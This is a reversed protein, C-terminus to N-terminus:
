FITPEQSGSKEQKKFLYIARYATTNAYGRIAGVATSNESITYNGSGGSKKSLYVGGSILADNKSAAAWKYTSGTSAFALKRNSSATFYLYNSGNKITFGNTNDGTFEFEVAGTPLDTADFKRVGNSAAVTVYNASVEWDGSSVSAKGFYFNNTASASRLAGVVYTGATVDNLSTVMQYEYDTGWM